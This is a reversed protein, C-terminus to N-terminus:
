KDGKVTALIHKERVIIYETDELKIDTKEFGKYVIRDGVKITKVEDGVAVVKAIKPAEKAENPLYLGSKTRDKAKEPEAVVHDSLPKLM